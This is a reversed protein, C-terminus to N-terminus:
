TWSRHMVLTRQADASATYPRGDLFRRAEAIAQERDYSAAIRRLGHRIPTADVVGIRWGHECRWRRGTSTSAGASGCRRSRCCRTSRSTTFRWWRGSRSSGRDRPGRGAAPPPHGALRRALARSPGAPRTAASLARGPVRVRRPLRAAAGRRRRAGAALRPGAAPHEALLANLNEFQGRDGAETSAFTVEHRSRLLEDRAAPLLNPVDTREVAIALVRRRPWRAAARRLRPRRLTALDLADAAADRIARGPPPASASWRAGLHRIRSRRARERGRGGRADRPRPRPQPRGDRDRERLATQRHALRVRRADAARGAADPRAGKRVDNRRARAASRTPPARCRARRDRRRRRPSPRGPARRRIPGPRRGGQLAAGVGGRRRPRPDDRRLRRDARARQPPDGHQRGM